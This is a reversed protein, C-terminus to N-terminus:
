KTAERIVLYVTAIQAATTLVDRVTGWTNRDSRAPVWVIDGPRLSGAEDASVQGGTAALSVRIRGKRARSTFGGADRVYDSASRGPMYPVYGPARVEGQVSVLPVSRPVVIRDGDHLAVDGRPDGRALLLGVNGSVARRERSASVVYDRDAPSLFDPNQRALSLFVSDRPADVSGREVRIAASDARATFGGAANLVSRLRDVSGRIAYPGPREVEGIVEVADGELWKARGPIFLRDGERLEVDDSGGPKALAQDLRVRPRESGGRDDFRELSADALAAEPLAGGAMAVLASLRDGSVYDYREPHPVAGRVEVRRGVPPVYVIDSEFVLPDAGLAGGRSALILDVRLTDAGRRVQIGRRAGGRAVGGAAEIAESARVPAQLTVTGPREVEGTVYLRFRRPRYLSFVFGRGRVYPRMRERVRLELEELTLGAVSLAGVDPLVLDGSPGVRLVRPDLLDSYRIAFEDGPGVRYTAPDVRGAIPPNPDPVVTAASGSIPSMGPSAPLDAAQVPPVQWVSALAM